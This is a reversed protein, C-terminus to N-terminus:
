ILLRVAVVRAADRLHHPHPKVTRQMYLRQATLFQPHKEQIEDFLRLSPVPLRWANEVLEPTRTVSSAIAEPSVKSQGIVLAGAGLLLAAVVVSSVISTYHRWKM